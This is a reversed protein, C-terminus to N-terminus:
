GPQAMVMIRIETMDEMSWRLGERGLGSDKVGGYPMHDIRYTPVDNVIVGGVELEAFSRWAGALDNTFVGTQLGFMSDNVRGIAEDLDGFPFAAVVPAFAENSCVQATTPVDALVTPPFFTGDATGGALVRGGLAVAEDVWAQTRSAQGADVMPGVDTATDLPDGVKLAAVGALFREMFADWIAEHVFLRQVSICVQGAYAFAGVLIRKVAWDLDATEDVIVGANGGLELVVKKKGARAKMRWGVSPSGTFTLLKFRDDAVMRDGLERTMPLISVMGEPVGAADIIEAVTLMTLPDKSPPKLVIPNGTAIAPSVKHAALNLPFNFPSIAAIPGIPFRRTIGLRDKSSAMLDLPILEGTMREAEEAGLRFTLVARDVEVLADRIPKGAELAILRGLEERRAKIGASIERLIRGREYAPMTRTVEFARVAAEVAEEYQAETATYTVGAPQDPDAPNAIELVDPSEVWRGALYIPHPKTGVLTM